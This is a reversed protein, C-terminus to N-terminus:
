SRRTVGKVAWQVNVTPFSPSETQASLRWYSRTQGPGIEFSAQKGPAANLTWVAVSDAHVGDESTEVIMSVENTVDLNVLVFLLTHYENGLRTFAKLVTLTSVPTSGTLGDITEPWFHLMAM